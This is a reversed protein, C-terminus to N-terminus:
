GKMDETKHKSKRTYKKKNRQISPRTAQQIEHQTVVITKMEISNKGM